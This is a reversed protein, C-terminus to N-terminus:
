ERIRVEELGIMRMKRGGPMKGMIVVAKDGEKAEGEKIAFSALAPLFDDVEEEQSVLVGKVGWLISTQYYTYENNTAVLMLQEPRHQSMFRPTHGWFSFMFIAKAKSSKALEHAGDIVARYEDLDSHDFFKKLNDDFPSEETDVIIKGMTAVAQVPYKGNASEGSLMVADTHDIVANSVDSVEARTPLPNEIMSELMQTAVIVPTNKELCKAIIEKQYVVVKTEPLEIGLDGRAVMIIDTAEVIEDINSIAEKREIKAVIKAYVEREGSFERIKAALDLIDKKGGVFSLAVFDVKLSLAFGLDDIDKETLAGFNLKADPINVGKHNKITGSVLVKARLHDDKKGIVELRIRGDEVLIENGVAIGDLIKEKDLRFFKGELAESGIDGVSIEEGEDVHLDEETLIRIRPGQLDAMIGIPKGMEKRLEQINKILEGNSEHTGHSFNVRAVDMGAEIMKRLVDKEKSAPGITAVIKTRKQMFYTM